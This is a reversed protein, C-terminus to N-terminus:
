VTFYKVCNYISIFIIVTMMGIFLKDVARNDMKKNVRRGFMGGLLGGLVMFVLALLKFDPVTGTILTFLLSTLQSFAIVYLSNAAATKSDMAFFFHLVVINIPGGGIGLFSSM